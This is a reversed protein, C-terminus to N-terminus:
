PTLDGSVAEVLMGVAFSIGLILVIEMITRVELHHLFHNGLALSNLGGLIREDHM